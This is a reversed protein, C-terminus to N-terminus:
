RLLSELAFTPNAAYHEARAMDRLASKYSRMAYGPRLIANGLVFKSVRVARGLPGRREAQQRFSQMLSGQHNIQHQKWEVIALHPAPTNWAEPKGQDQPEVFAVNQDFTIREGTALDALTFRDFAGRLTPRLEAAYPVHQAVFERERPTWEANWPQNSARVIREKTTKGYVDRKKVELFAVGTNEYQRIRIKFRTNRGRIHDELSIWDATDFYLNNYRTSVQGDITLVQHSKLYQVVELLWHVPVLFKSDFRDMLAVSEIAELGIPQRGHLVDLLDTLGPTNGDM